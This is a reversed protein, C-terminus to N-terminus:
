PGRETDGGDEILLEPLRLAADASVHREPALRLAMRYQGAVSDALLRKVSRSRDDITAM